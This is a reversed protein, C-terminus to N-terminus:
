GTQEKKDPSNTVLLLNTHKHGKEILGKIAEETAEVSTYSGAVFKSM